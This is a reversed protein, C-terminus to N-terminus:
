LRISGHQRCYASVSMGSDAQAKMHRRWGAEKKM